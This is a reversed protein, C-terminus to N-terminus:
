GATFACVNGKKQKVLARLDDWHIYNSILFSYPLAGFMIYDFDLGSYLYIVIICLNICMVGHYGVLEVASVPAPNYAVHVGLSVARDVACIVASLLVWCSTM